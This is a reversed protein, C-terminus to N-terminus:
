YDIMTFVVKGAIWHDITIGSYEHVLGKNETLKYEQGFESRLEHIHQVGNDAICQNDALGDNLHLQDEDGLDNIDELEDDDIDMDAVVNM